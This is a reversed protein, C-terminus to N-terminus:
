DYVIMAIAVALEFVSPGSSASEGMLSGFLGVATDLLPLAEIDITPLGMNGRRYQVPPAVQAPFMALFVRARKGTLKDYDCAM